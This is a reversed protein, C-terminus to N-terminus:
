CTNTWRAWFRASGTPTTSIGNPMTTPPGCATTWGSPLAGHFLGPCGEDPAMEVPKASNGKPLIFLRSAGPVFATIRWEKGALHPGLLAFPDGHRGEVLARAAGMDLTVVTKATM